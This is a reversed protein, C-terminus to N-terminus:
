DRLLENIGTKSRTKEDVRKVIVACYLSPGPEGNPFPKGPMTGAVVVSYPPVEGYTIEGTARDVIKTSKGIFVGMGLVAGERVICGEVVESRAGIFCNDEIITPGAQLPELVGGIGVGGSLHVNKGIQACSGVTAWTDVMTGEDVYAGLNVFSPMLVVNKAVYASRRVVANPVARFGAARFQNEGWNEFKSPVKDWWTSEGPGGTVIEMDNLRFSLLVAKKLWQNVKWNGDAQKEAVRAKGSDLLQLSTDVADRVEGKTSVNVGDRNDFATEIITELSTLDTLSM